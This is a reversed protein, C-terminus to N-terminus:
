PFTDKVGTALILTQGAFDGASTSVTFRRERGEGSTEVDNACADVFHAGYKRAQTEGLERLATAHLGSPFGLYNRNVQHWTSRGQKDDIVLVSRRLRGMYLAASLGAPGGGVVICDFLQSQSDAM